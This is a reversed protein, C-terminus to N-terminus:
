MEMYLKNTFVKYIFLINNVVICMCVNFKTYPVALTGCSLVILHHINKDVIVCVTSLTITLFKVVNECAHLNRSCIFIKM